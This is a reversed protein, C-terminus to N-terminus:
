EKTLGLFVDELSLATLEMGLLVANKQVCLTFIDKRPDVEKGAEIIYGFEGPKHTDFTLVSEVGPISKLSSVFDGNEVSVVISVRAKNKAKEILESTTGSAVITGKHIVIARTCSAQVESLIHTSLIVTKTKGITRILNRIEIIQNPDLGSTPEDLVIIDPDGLLAQALGVRQRYGKSLEGIQQTVRDKLGCVGVVHRVQEELREINKARAIFELYEYVKMENYLPNNEPLYGIRSRIDLPNDLMNVGAIKVEGLTPALFGTLIRMTTTKGAGNPGLFGIVEGADITFTLNDLVKLSGFKKTLDKVTIEM